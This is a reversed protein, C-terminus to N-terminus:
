SGPKALLVADAVPGRLADALVPGQHHLVVIGDPGVIFTEPLGHVGLQISASGDPDRGIGTYPNGFRELFANADADDDRYNVGIVPLDGALVEISSAELRCPACWSAFVNVAYAQGRRDALSVTGPGGLRPMAIEPMPQGTMSFGISSTDREGKSTADLMQYAVLGILAFVLLPIALLLRRM